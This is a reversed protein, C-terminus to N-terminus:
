PQVTVAVGTQTSVHAITASIPWDGAAVSPVVVNFQYLGAAVIGAFQVQAPVSGITISLLSLDALPDVSSVIIGSPTAPSTPGFGTGYVAITEGPKAPRAGPALSNNGVLTNDAHLAAVYRGVTFFAPAYQSMNVTTPGSTLQGNTVTVTVPGINADDPVQVDIQTPSIYYVAAPRNDIKVSVGDLSTPLQQGQFDSTLWKRTSGALNQGYLALWGGSTMGPVNAAASVLGGSSIAPKGSTSAPTIKQIISRGSDGIYIAGDPSVSISDPAFNSGPTGDNYVTTIMGSIDVRRVRHNGVEALYLNGAGDVAIGAPAIQAQTAAGGDGSFGQVGTGAVTQINGGPAFKRIRGSAADGIYLNGSSDAALCGASVTLHAQAAPGGDGDYGFQGYAGAILTGPAGPNYRYVAGSDAYYVVGDGGIAIALGGTLMNSALNGGTVTQIFGDVIYLTGDQAIAVNSPNVLPVQTAPGTTQGAWVAGNGAVTSITGGSDIKRIRFNGTDAFYINGAGDTRVSRPLSLKAQTAPGGDGSFGTAETGGITTITQAFSGSILCLGIWYINKM